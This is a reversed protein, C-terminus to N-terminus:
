YIYTSDIIAGIQDQTLVNKFIMLDKINGTIKNTYIPALVGLYLASSLNDTDINEDSSSAYFIGNVYIMKIGLSTKICTIHYWQETLLAKSGTTNYETSGNYTVFNIYHTTQTVEIRWQKESADYGKAIIVDKTSAQFASPKYWFCISHGYTKFRLDANDSLSIYNTSGNFRLYNQSDKCKVSTFTENPTIIVGAPLIPFGNDCSSDSSDYFIQDEGDMHLLLKTNSDPQFPQTPPTFTTTYRATTSVRFDSLYANLPYSTGNSLIGIYISGSHSSIADACSGTTGSQQGNIYIAQYSGNRVCAIHYWTNLSIADSLCVWTGPGTSASRFWVKNEPTIQIRLAESDNTRHDYVYGAVEPTSLLYIDFEICFSSSGFDFSTHYPTTLHSGNKDLYAVGSRCPSCIQKADGYTTITHNNQSSDIFTNDSRNFHILLKTNNDSGLQKYPPTFDSTYRATNSLRFESANFGFTPNTRDKGFQIGSNDGICSISKSITGTVILKGNIYMKSQNTSTGERVVAIHSWQGLTITNNPSLLQETNSQGDFTSFIVFKDTTQLVLGFTGNYGATFYNLSQGVCPWYDIIDPIYVWVEYTFPQTGIDSGSGQITIYNYYNVGDGNFIGIGAGPFPLIQTANGVATIPKPANTSAISGPWWLVCKNQKLAEINIISM